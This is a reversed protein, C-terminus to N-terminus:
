AGAGPRQWRPGHSGPWHRSPRPETVTRRNWKLNSGHSPTLSVGDSGSDPDWKRRGTPGPRGCESLSDLALALPGSKAHKAGAPSAQSCGKQCTKCAGSETDPSVGPRGHESDSTSVRAWPTGSLTSKSNRHVM